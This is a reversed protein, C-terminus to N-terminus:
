KREALMVSLWGAIATNASVRMQGPVIWVFVRCGQCVPTAANKRSKARLVVRDPKGDQYVTDKV